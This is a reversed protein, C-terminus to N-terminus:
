FGPGPGRRNSKDRKQEREQLIKEYESRQEPKLMARIMDQQDKRIAQMEPDLKQRAEHFRSRTEDFIMNLQTVQEENLNLRAQWDAVMKKRVDEPNKQKTATVTSASYLRDVFVGLVIGSAFVLGVYLAITLKSLKM